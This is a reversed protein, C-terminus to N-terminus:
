EDSDFRRAKGEVLDLDVPGEDARDVRVRLRGGDDLRDETDSAAEPERHQGFTHLSRFFQCEKRLFEALDAM